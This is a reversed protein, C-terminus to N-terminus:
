LERRSGLASNARAWDWRSCHRTCGHWTRSHPIGLTTYPLTYGPHHIAWWPLTTGVWCAEREGMGLM